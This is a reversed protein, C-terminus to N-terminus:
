VLVPLGGLVLVLSDVQYKASVLHADEDTSGAPYTSSIWSRSRAKPEPIIKELAACVLVVTKSPM